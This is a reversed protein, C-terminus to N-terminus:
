SFITPYQPMLSRFQWSRRERGLTLGSRYRAAFDVLWGTGELLLERGAPRCQERAVLTSAGGTVLALKGDLRFSTIPADLMPSLLQITALLLRM